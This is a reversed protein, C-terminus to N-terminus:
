ILRMSNFITSSPGNIEQDQCKEKQIIFCKQPSFVISNASEPKSSLQNNKGKRTNEMSIIFCTKNLKECTMDTYSTPFYIGAFTIYTIWKVLLCKGVKAMNYM